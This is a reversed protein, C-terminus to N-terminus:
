HASFRIDGYWAQAHNHSNDCDTMVGVAGILHIRGGFANLFDSRVNRREVQWMGVGRPGSRVAIVMEHGTYPSPWAKRNTSGHGSGNSWVYSLSKLTWPLWRTGTVVYIRAPFDDGSKEQENIGPYIRSIKWRWHLIPTKDLNVSGRWILGSASDNCQAHIVRTGNDNVLTYRTRRQHDFRRQSWGQLGKLSFAPPKAVAMVSLPIFVLLCSLVVGRSRM